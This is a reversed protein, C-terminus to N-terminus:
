AGPLTGGAAAQEIHRLNRWQIGERFALVLGLPVIV